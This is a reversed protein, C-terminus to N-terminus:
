GPAALRNMWSAVQRCNVPPRKEFSRLVRDRVEPEQEQSLKFMGDARAIVVRFGGVGPLIQRLYGLSDTLDWGNGFRSELARATALVIELTEDSSGASEVARLLGRVHVATFDWTPAAPTREYIAPSVYSQPGTFTLAVEAPERLAAWHPNMRNMHGWMTVGVLDFPETLNPDFIVPVHTVQPAGADLGNSILQALPHDRILDVLWSQDPERFQSPVYLYSPENQTQVLKM